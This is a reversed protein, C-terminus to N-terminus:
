LSSPPLRKAPSDADRKWASVASAIFARMGARFQTKGVGSLPIKSVHCFNQRVGLAVEVVRLAPTQRGFLRRQKFCRSLGDSEELLRERRPDHDAVGYYRRPLASVLEATAFGEPDDEFLL